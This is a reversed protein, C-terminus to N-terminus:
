EVDRVCRFGLAGNQRGQPHLRDLLGSSPIEDYSCGGRNVKHLSDFDTSTWEAHNGSMHLCGYPSASEPLEEVMFIALLDDNTGRV